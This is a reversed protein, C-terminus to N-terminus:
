TLCTWPCQREQIVGCSRESSWRTEHTAVRTARTWNLRKDLDSQAFSESPGLKTPCKRWCISHHRPRSRRYTTTRKACGEEDPKEAEEAEPPYWAGDSGLMSGFRHCRMFRVVPKFELPHRRHTQTKPHLPLLPVGQGLSLGRRVRLFFFSFHQFLKLTTLEVQELEAAEFIIALNSQRPPLKRNPPIRVQIQVGQGEAQPSFKTPLAKRM